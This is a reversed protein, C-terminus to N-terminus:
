LVPAARFRQAELLVEDRQIKGGRAFRGAVHDERAEADGRGFIIVVIIRPQIHLALDNQQQAMLRLLEVFLADEFAFDIGGMRLNEALRGIGLKVAGLGHQQDVIDARVDPSASSRSFNPAASPGSLAPM